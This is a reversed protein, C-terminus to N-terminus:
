RTLFALKCNSSLSKQNYTNIKHLSKTSKFISPHYNKDDADDNNRACSYTATVEMNKGSRRPM